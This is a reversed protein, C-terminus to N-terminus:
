LHVPDYWWSATICSNDQLPSFAVTLLGTVQDPRTSAEGVPYVGWRGEQEEPGSSRPCLLSPVSTCVAMRFERAEGTAQFVCTPPQWESFGVPLWLSSGLEWM